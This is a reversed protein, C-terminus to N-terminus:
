NKLDLDETTQNKWSCQREHVFLNHEMFKTTAMKFNM